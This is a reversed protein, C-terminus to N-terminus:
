RSKPEPPSYFEKDRDITKYQTLKNGIIIYRQSDSAGEIKTRISYNAELLNEAEKVLLTEM